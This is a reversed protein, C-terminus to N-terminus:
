RREYLQERGRKGALEIAGMKRLSYTMAQATRRPLRAASALESNTFRGDLEPPLLSLYDQPRTFRSSELVATLQKDVISQGRRRWSGRGDERRLETQEVLLVEIQLEPQTALDAIYVLERFLDYLNGRKPSRRTGLLEGGESIRVIHKVKAIPYVLLVRHHKLLAALKRRIASFSGTQIEVLQDPRAIDIVYGGVPSEAVANLEGDRTM